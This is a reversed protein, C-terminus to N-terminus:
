PLLARFVFKVQPPLMVLLVFMGVRVVEIRFVTKASTPAPAQASAAPVVVPFISQFFKV